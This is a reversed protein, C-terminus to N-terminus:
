GNSPTGNSPTETAPTETTPTELKGTVFYVQSGKDEIERDLNTCDEETACTIKAPIILRVNRSGNAVQRAGVFCSYLSDSTWAVNACSRRDDSCATQDLEFIGEPDLGPSGLEITTGDPFEGALWAVSACQRVGADDPAGGIPANAISISPKDIETGTTEPTTPEPSPEGTTESATTPVPSPTGNGNPTDACGALVLAAVAAVGLIRTIM